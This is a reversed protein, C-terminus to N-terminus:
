NREGGYTSLACLDLVCTGSKRIIFSELISAGVLPSWALNGSLYKIFELKRQFRARDIKKMGQKGKPNPLNDLTEEAISVMRM